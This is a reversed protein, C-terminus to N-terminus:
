ACSCLTPNEYNKCNYRSHERWSDIDSRWATLATRSSKSPVKSSVPRPSVKVLAQADLQRTSRAAVAHASLHCRAKCNCLAKDQINCLAHQALMTMVEGWFSLFCGYASPRQLGPLCSNVAQPHLADCCLLEKILALDEQLVLTAGLM